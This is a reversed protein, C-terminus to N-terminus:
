AHPRAATFGSLAWALAAGLLLVLAPVGFAILLMIGLAKWPAAPEKIAINAKQYLRNSVVDDSLDKYEPYLRTLADIKYWCQAAGPPNDFRDFLNGTYDVDVKGRVDRCNVPVLLIGASSWDQGAREFEAVVKEYGLIGVAGAFLVSGVVWIRFFGQRFNM